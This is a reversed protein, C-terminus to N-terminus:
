SSQPTASGTESVPVWILVGEYPVLAVSVVWVLGQVRHGCASVQQVLLRVHGGCHLPTFGQPEVGVIPVVIDIIGYAEWM